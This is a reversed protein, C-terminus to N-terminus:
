LLEALDDVVDGATRGILRALHLAGARGGRLHDRADLLDRSVGGEHGFGALLRARGRLVTTLRHALGARRHAVDLEDHPLRGALDALQADETLLDARHDFRDVVDGLLGVQQR